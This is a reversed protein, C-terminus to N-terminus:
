DDIILAVSSPFGRMRSRTAAVAVVRAGRAPARSGAPLIVGSASVTDMQGTM